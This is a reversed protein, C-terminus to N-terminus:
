MRGNVIEYRTKIVILLGSVVDNEQAVTKAIEVHGVSQVIRFTDELDSEQVGVNFLPELVVSIEVVDDQHVVLRHIQRKINDLFYGTIDLVHFSCITLLIAEERM